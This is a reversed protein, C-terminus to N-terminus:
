KNSYDAMTNFNRLALLYETESTELEIILPNRSLLNKQLSHDPFPNTDRSIKELTKSLGGCSYIACLPELYNDKRTVDNGPNKFIYCGYGPNEEYAKILRSILPQNMTPMDCAAVLWNKEPLAEHASLIGKLPGRAQIGNQDFILRDPNFLGKYASAQELRLSIYVEPLNQSLLDYINKSWPQANHSLLGKDSGMRSSEGGCLVLGALNLNM